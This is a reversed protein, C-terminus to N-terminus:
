VFIVVYKLKYFFLLNPTSVGFRQKNKANSNKIRLNVSERCAKNTTVCCQTVTTVRGLSANAYSAHLTNPTSTVQSFVTSLYLTSASLDMASSIM